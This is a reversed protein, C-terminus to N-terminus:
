GRKFIFDLNPLPKKLIIFYFIIVAVVVAISVAIGIMTWPFGLEAQVTIQITDTDSNGATDTVTLTVTYVGTETYNHSATVGTGTTGDGFNWQYGAIENNDTSEGADFSVQTDLIVTQDNGANATPAENDSSSTVVLQTPTSEWVYKMDIIDPEPSASVFEHPLTISLQTNSLPINFSSGFNIESRIGGNLQEAYQGKLILIATVRRQTITMSYEISDSFISSQVEGSGQLQIFDDNISAQFDVLQIFYSEVISESLGVDALLTRSLEIASEENPFIKLTVTGMMKSSIREGVVDIIMKSIVDFNEDRLTTYPTSITYNRICTGIGEENLLIDITGEGLVSTTTDLGGFFFEGIIVESSVVYEAPPDVVTVDLTQEGIPAKLNNWAWGLLQPVALVIGGVKEITEATLKKGVEEGFMKTARAIIAKRFTPNNAMEKLLVDAGLGALDVDTEQAALLIIEIFIPIKDVPPPLWPGVAIIGGELTNLFDSYEYTLKFEWSPPGTKTPITIRVSGGPALFNLKEAWYTPLSSFFFPEDDILFNYYVEGKNRIKVNVNDGEVGYITVELDGQTEVQAQFMTKDIDYVSFSIPQLPVTVHENGSSDNYAIHFSVRGIGASDALWMYWIEAIQEDTAGSIAWPDQYYGTHHSVWFIENIAMGEPKSCELYAGHFFGDTLDPYYPWRPIYRGTDVIISSVAEDGTNNLMMSLLFYEGVEIKNNGTTEYDIFLKDIEFKPGEKVTFSSSTQTDYTKTGDTNSVSALVTYSGTKLAKTTWGELWDYDTLTFTFNTTATEQAPVIVFKTQKGMAQSHDSGSQHKLDQLTLIVEGEVFGYNYLDVEVTVINEDITYLRYPGGATISSISIDPNGVTVITSVSKEHGKKDKAVAKLTYGKNTYKTTDLYISWGNDEYTDTGLLVEEVDVIYFSVTEVGNVDFADVSFLISGYIETESPKKLTIQPPNNDVSVSISDQSNGRVDFVEVTITHKGETELATDWSWTFIDSTKDSFIRHKYTGDVYFTVNEIESAQPESVSVTVTVTGDIVSDFIPSTISLVPRGSNNIKVTLNQFKVHGAYDQIEASLTHDGDDYETTDWLYVWNEESEYDMTNVLQNDSWFNVTQVGFNDTTDVQVLQTGFVEEELPSLFAGTPPANDVYFTWTKSKKNENTTDDYVTVKFDLNGDSFDVDSIDWFYPFETDTYRLNNDSYFEVKGIGSEDSATVQLPFMDSTSTSSLSISGFGYWVGDLRSIVYSDLGYDAKLFDMEPLYYFSFDPPVIDHVNVTISDSEGTNGVRDVAEAKINHTGEAMGTTNWSWSFPDIDSIGIVYDDVYYLVMFVGRGIDSTSVTFDVVGSVGSGDVPSILSVSPSIFDIPFTLPLYDINGTSILHSSDCIGDGDVDLCTESIGSHDPKAWFNGGLYSGGAINTGEIKTTNWSNSTSTVLNTNYTNNFLNNYILNDQSGDLIIGYGTNHRVFNNRIINHDSLELYVGESTDSTDCRTITNFDSNYLTVGQYSNQNVINKGLMNNDSNELGIGENNRSVNNNILTNGDSEYLCIGKDNSYLMNDSITNEFSTDLFLGCNLNESFTINQILGEEVNEFKIGYDWDTLHLNRITVESLTSSGKVLIGISNQNQVGDLTFGNGDIIVGSARIEICSTSSSDTIDSTLIYFGSSDIVTCSDISEVGTSATALQTEPSQMEVLPTISEIVPTHSEVNPNYSKVIPTPSEYAPQAPDVLVEPWEVGSTWALDKPDINHIYGWFLKSVFIDSWRGYEHREGGGAFILFDGYSPDSYSDIAFIEDGYETGQSYETGLTKFWILDGDFTSLTAIFGETFGEFREVKGAIYVIDDQVTMSNPQDREDGLRLYKFWQLDGNLSFSAVFIHPVCIEYGYCPPQFSESYGSVYISDGYGAISEGFDRDEEGITKFWELNGDLSLCSVFADYSGAGFGDAIGTVFIKGEHVVIDRGELDDYDGGSGFTTVWRLSGDSVSFSAVIVDNAWGAGLNSEGTLYLNDEYLEIARYEGGGGIKKFWLLSGDQSSVCALFPSNDGEGTIFVKDSTVVIGNARDGEDSSIRTFWNLSGDSASLSAVFIDRDDGEPNDTRGATYITDGFSAICYAAEGVTGISKFWSTINYDSLSTAKVDLFQKEVFSSTQNRFIYLLNPSTILM